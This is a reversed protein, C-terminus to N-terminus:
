EAKQPDEKYNMVCDWNEKNMKEKLRELRFSGKTPVHRGKWWKQSFINAQQQLLVFKRVIFFLCIQMQWNAKLHPEQFKYSFLLDWPLSNNEQLRALHLILIYILFWVLEQYTKPRRAKITIKLSCMAMRDTITLTLAPSNKFSTLSSEVELYNRQGQSAGAKKTALWWLPAAVSKHSHQPIVLPMNTSCGQIWCPQVWTDLFDSSKGPSSKGTSISPPIM